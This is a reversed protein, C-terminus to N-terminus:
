SQQVPNSGTTSPKCDEANAAEGVVPLECDYVYRGCKDCPKEHHPVYLWEVKRKCKACKFM